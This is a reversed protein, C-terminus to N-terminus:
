VLTKKEDITNRINKFSPFNIESKKIKTFRFIYIELKLLEWWHSDQQLKFTGIKIQDSDNKKAKESGAQTVSDNNKTSKDGGFKVGIMLM